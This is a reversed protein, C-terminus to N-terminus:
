SGHNPHYGLKDRTLEAVFGALELDEFLGRYKRSVNVQWKQGRKNWSVGTYGSTNNSNKSRNRDNENTDRLNEIRNDSVVQNIHDIEYKPWRGYFHAFAARHVFIRKGAIEMRKYGNRMINGCEKGAHSSNWAKCYRESSFHSIDREKWVMSGTKPNYDVFERLLEIDIQSM